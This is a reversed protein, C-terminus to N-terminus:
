WAMLRKQSFRVNKYVKKMSSLAEEETAGTCSALYSSGDFWFFKGQMKKLTLSWKIGSQFSINAITINKIIEM